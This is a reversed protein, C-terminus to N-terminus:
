RALRSSELLFSFRSVGRVYTIGSREGTSTTPAVYGKVRPAWHLPVPAPRRLLPRGVPRGASIQDAPRRARNWWRGPRGTQRYQGSHPSATQPVDPDQPLYPATKRCRKRRLVWISWMRANRITSTTHFPRTPHWPRDSPRPPGLLPGVSPPRGAPRVSAPPRGPVPASTLRVSALASLTRM